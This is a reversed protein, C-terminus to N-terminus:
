FESCCHWGPSLFLQVFWNNDEKCGGGKQCLTATPLPHFFRARLDPWRNTGWPGNELGVSTAIQLLFLIPFLVKYM